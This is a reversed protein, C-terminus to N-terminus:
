KIAWNELLMGDRHLTMFDRDSLFDRSDFGNPVVIAHGSVTPKILIDDSYFSDRLEQVIDENLSAQDYDFLWKHTVACDAQSAFSVLKNHLDDPHLDPHDILYHILKNNAKVINRANVSRYFRCFEDPRGAEVFADFQKNLTEIPADSLFTQVREKFHQIHKNDKNRSKFLITHFESM